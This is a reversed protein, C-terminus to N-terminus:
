LLYWGRIVELASDEKLIWEDIDKFQEPPFRIEANWQEARKASILQMKHRTEMNTDNDGVLIRRTAFSLYHKWEEVRAGEGGTLCCANFGLQDLLMVAIEGKLILVPEEKWMCNDVNFLAKRSGKESWYRVGPGSIRRFKIAHLVGECFVPIMLAYTGKQGLHFKEVTAPTLGRLRAYELAESGVPYQRWANNSLQSQVYQPTAVSMPISNTLFSVARAILDPDRGDYGPINMYGVLDIVDGEKGCAGHCYFRDFGDKGIGIAFSPTNHYHPHFPLPCVIVRKRDDIGLVDHIRFLRRIDRLMLNTDM